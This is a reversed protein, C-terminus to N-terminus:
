IKLRSERSWFTGIDFFRTFSPHPCRRSPTAISWSSRRSTASTHIMICRDLARCSHFLVAMRIFARWAPRYRAFSNENTKWSYYNTLSLLYIYLKIQSRVTVEPCVWKYQLPPLDPNAGLLTIDLAPILKPPSLQFLELPPNQLDQRHLSSLGLIAAMQFDSVHGDLLQRRTQDSSSKGKGKWREKGLNPKRKATLRKKRRTKPKRNLPPLFGVLVEDDEETDQAEQEEHVETDQVETDQV